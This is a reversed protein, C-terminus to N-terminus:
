TNAGKRTPMVTVNGAILAEIELSIEDQRESSADIFELSLRSIRHHIPNSPTPPPTAKGHM